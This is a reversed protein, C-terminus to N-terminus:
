PPLVRHADEPSTPTHLPVPLAVSHTVPRPAPPASALVCARSNEPAGAFLATSRGHRRATQSEQLRANAAEVDRAAAAIAADIEREVEPLEALRKRSAGAASDISQLAILASLDPLM